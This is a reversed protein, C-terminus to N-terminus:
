LIPFNRSSLFACFLQLKVSMFTQSQALCINRCGLKQYHRTEGCFYEVSLGRIKMIYTTYNMDGFLANPVQINIFLANSHEHMEQPIM